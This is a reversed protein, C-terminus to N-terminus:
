TVLRALANLKKGAKSYISQMHNKFKLERDITIGLLKVEHTEIVSAHGIKAIIVEEKNGCVLLHCKSENLKMYNNKFWDIVLNASSELKGILDNLSINCTYLTNNDAFNCIDTDLAIFFLDNLYINFLLPGLISGQPVGILLEVWSSYSKNVKIRQWRNSLYSKILILANKSFGYAHLKAIHLDHNLTDFAKSLDMLIAGGCGKNDLSVRLKVLLVIIALQVSYGERYGCLYPSLSTEMYHGIQRQIIREFIKSGSPLGSIPRYNSKKITDDKKHVPTIDALKMGDDFKSNIICFNIIEHLNNSSVDIHEKLHKASVTNEPNSIKTNLNNIENLIATLSTLHFSFTSNIQIANIM